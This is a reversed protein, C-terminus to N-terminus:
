KIVKITKDFIILFFTFLIIIKSIITSKEWEIKLREKVKEVLNNNKNNIKEM